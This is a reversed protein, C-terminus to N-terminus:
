WVVHHRLFVDGQAIDDAIQPDDLGPERGVVPNDDVPEDPRPGAGLHRRLRLARGARLRLGVLRVSAAIFIECKKMSRGIKAETTEITKTIRPRTETDRRGTAWYGSIAGGMM